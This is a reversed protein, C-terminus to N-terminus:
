ISLAPDDWDVGNLFIRLFMEAQEAAVNPGASDFGWAAKVLPRQMYIQTIAGTCMYLLIVNSGQARAPRLKRAREILGLLVGFDRKVHTKALWATRPTMRASEHMMVRGLEPRRSWFRTLVHVLRRVMRLFDQETETRRVLAAAERHLEEFQSDIVARWLAAKSQFYYKILAHNAKVARAMDRTSAGDYGKDAFEKLAAALIRGKTKEGAPKLARAAPKRASPRRLKGPSAEVTM